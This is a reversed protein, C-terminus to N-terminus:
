QSLDALLQQYEERKIEGKAYRIRVIDLASQSPAQVPAPPAPPTAPTRRVAWIILFVLALIFILGFILPAILRIMGLWQFGYMMM